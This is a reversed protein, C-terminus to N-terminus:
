LVGGKPLHPNNFKLKFTDKVSFKFATGFDSILIRNQNDILINDIKLDRHVILNSQLFLIGLLHNNFYM